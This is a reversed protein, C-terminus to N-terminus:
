RSIKTFIRGAINEFIQSLYAGSPAYYYNGCNHMPAVPVGGVVCPDNGRAGDDGINAIYRLLAEGASADGLGVSFMVIDEGKPEHANTSALLGARDVMDFAYDEVSYPGSNSSTGAIVNPFPPTPPPPLPAVPTPPCQAPDSDICWRGADTGTNRDVCRSQWFSPAVDPPTPGCFGYTFEAPVVSATAHIDSLNAVGDSLFVIVWVAGPRGQGALVETAYRIGCGSCTSIIAEKEWKLWTALPVAGGPADWSASSADPANGADYWVGDAPNSWDYADLVSATPDITPPLDAPNTQNPRDCPLGSNDDWMDPTNAGWHDSPVFGADTASQGSPLQLNVHADQCPAGPDADKGDGDRDELYIPNIKFSVRWPSPSTWLVRSGMADKHLPIKNQIATQVSGLTSTLASRLEAKYDFTVVAVQDYGDFLNGVLKSAAIKADLLPRCNGHYTFGTDPDTYTSTPANCAAPDFNRGAPDGADYSDKGMSMSTDFVLVLDVAATEGIASVHLPFSRVGFIQLFYVPSDQTAEIYALKRPPEGPGPCVSAFKAPKSADSCLYVELDNVGTIQHAKLMEAASDTIKTRFNASAPNKINNAAAVAAADVARQLQTYSVYISGVDTVLGIFALLAFFAVALLVLAQGQKEGQLLDTWPSEPKWKGFLRIPQREKLSRKRNKEFM